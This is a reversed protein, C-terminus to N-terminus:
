ESGDDDSMIDAGGLADLESEASEQDWNQATNWRTCTFRIRLPSQLLSDLCILPIM